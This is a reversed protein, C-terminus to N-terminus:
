ATRWSATSQKKKKYRDDDIPKTIGHRKSQFCYRTAAMIDEGKKVIEGNTEVHYAAKEMFWESLHSFVKFKGCQMAENMSVLGPWVKNGGEGEKQGDTPPNSFKEYMLNVNNERYLQSLATGSGKEENLGDHPWAVPIWTGRAAIARAHVPPLVQRERYVDYVYFTDTDRDWAGWVAAFPHDHGFDIACVRFWHDPIEFPKVSISEDSVTFVLGRGFMPLGKRRMDREHAPISALAKDIDEKSYHPADDMSAHRYWTGPKKDHMFMRVVETIGQEPTATILVTGKRRLTRIVCQSWIEQPPEEDLSIGHMTEGMWEEVKQEYTNGTRFGDVILEHVDPIGLGYVPMNGLFEVATVQSSTEGRPVIRHTIEVGIKGIELFKLYNKGYLGIYFHRGSQQKVASPIGISWLLLRVDNALKSCCTTYRAETNKLSGDCSWLWRLFLIRDDRNLSFVWQPIFKKDAKKGWLGDEVLSDKLANRRWLSSSIKWDYPRSTGQKVVKLHYPLIAKIADMVAKSATTFIPTKAVMCGDGIMLATMAILWEPKRRFTRAEYNPNAIELSDGIVVEDMRIKGRQTFVPHNPTGSIDGSKTRIRLVPASKYVHNQDAVRVLGDACLVADGSMMDEIPTWSGDPLLVLSGAPHCKFALNSWKGDVHLIKISDLSGPIGAMRTPKGICEKPIWGTGVSAPDEYDGLLKKQLNDRVKKTSQGGL